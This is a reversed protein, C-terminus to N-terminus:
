SPTGDRQLDKLLAAREDGFLAIQDVTRTLGYPGDVRVPKHLTLLLNPTTLLTGVLLSKSRAPKGSILRVAKLNDRDIVVRWRIGLRLSLTDTLLYSPRKLTAFVDAVLFLLSYASLATTWWAAAPSLRVLLLHVASVETLGVIMLASMLAIQGSERHTTLVRAGAPVDPQLRWGLLAYYFMQGEGVMLASVTEGFVATLAGQLASVQDKAPRLRRYTQVITRLRLVAMLLVTGEALLLLLPWSLWNASLTIEALILLGVRLMLLAVVLTRGIPWGKPRAILRYFLAAPVVTLDFLVAGSLLGPRLSFATSHVVVWEVGVLGAIAFLGIIGNRAYNTTM